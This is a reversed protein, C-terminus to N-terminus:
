AVKVIAKAASLCHTDSRERQPGAINFWSKFTDLMWVFDALDAKDGILRVGNYDFLMDLTM